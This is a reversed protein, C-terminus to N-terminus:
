EPTKPARLAALQEELEARRLAAAETVEDRLSHYRGQIQTQLEEGSTPTFLIALTAGVVAGTLFGALLSVFRKM